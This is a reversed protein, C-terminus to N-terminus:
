AAPDGQDAEPAAAPRAPAWVTPATAELAEVLADVDDPGNYVHLSARVVADLGRHGLDWQGHSAPVVVVHVGSAQLARRTDAPAEGERVFTVIGSAAAPPDVVRVGPVAALRERLLAGLGQLHGQIVDIGLARCRALAVGLGLRLAHSTEWTEFRVATPRLDYDREASWVAGRVDPTPPRLGERLTPAVYLLGTGRPGRLFKRGTTVLVDCGIAGVDVAIQGVSQTADLLYTVGAARALAGIAAAPEVLGSSTPVHSATVLAAPRRLAAELADLDTAGSADTPLIEVEVGRTRALELLHLASSVYSSRAALIRDGRGLRLADVARQWAVTASEVQAVDAPQAGLLAAADAYVADLREGRAAAAE